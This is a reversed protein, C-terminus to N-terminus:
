TLDMDITNGPGATFMSIMDNLGGCDKLGPLTYTGKLKGGKYPQFRGESALDIKAPEVTKCNEGGGIPIGFMNVSTLKVFMESHSKLVGATDLTGTTEGTQEFAIDTTVPLFGMITFNGKTPNLTLDADFTGKSLDYRTNIGGVLATKGNPAKIFSEGKIDFNLKVPDDGPPDTPDTPDTPPDTPDTPPDTPDTPPDTPDTPPDTPDTGGDGITMTHLTTPQDATKTCDAGFEDGNPPLQVPKGDADRAIMNHLKLGTVDFKATGEKEWTLLDGPSKGRATLTFPAAPSPINGKEVTNVVKIPLNGDGGPLTVNVDATAKGELSVAGLVGLGQAARASVTTVSTIDYAPVVEGVKMTAPMESTITVEIPDAKIIPFVCTYKQTLKVPDASASGGGLSVLGTVLGAAAVASLATRARVQRKHAGM